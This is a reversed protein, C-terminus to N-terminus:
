DKTQREPGQGGPGQQEPDQHQFQRIRPKRTHHRRIRSVRTARRQQNERHDVTRNPRRTGSPITPERPQSTGGESRRQFRRRNCRRKNCTLAQSSTRKTTCNPWVHQSTARNSDWNWGHRIRWCSDRNRRKCVPRRKCGEHIM